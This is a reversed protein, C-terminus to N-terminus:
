RSVFRGPAVLLVREKHDLKVLVPGPKENHMWGADEEKYRLIICTKRGTAVIIEIRGDLVYFFNSDANKKFYKLKEDAVLGGREGDYGTEVQYGKARM